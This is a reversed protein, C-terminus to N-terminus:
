ARAPALERRIAPRAQREARELFGLVADNFAHPAELCSMHGVGPLLRLEAGPITEALFSAPRRCARDLEGCLVLVPLALARLAPGRRYVPERAAVAGLLVHSLGHAPHQRVLLEVHRRARRGGRALYAEVFPSALMSEAHAAIGGTRAREVWAAAGRRAADPDDSGSGGDALTLSALLAPHRTAAQLAVTAGLSLGVVHAPALGLGRILAALDDALITESYAAPDDPAASRGHGRQDYAVVRCSPAFARLQSRWLRWGCAFGHVLVVPRGAGREVHHLTVEGCALAPM